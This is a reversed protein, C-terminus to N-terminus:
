FSQSLIQKTTKFHLKAVNKLEDKGFKKVFENAFNIVNQGAGKPFNMGYKESLIKLQKLFEARALISASAVAIDTEDAKPTQILNIKKGMQMLSNLLYNEDGFQDSIASSCKFGVKEIEKLLNEIVRAHGWALLKNLNLKETLENYRKPKIVVVNVICVEKIKESLEFVRKDSLKKSDKVGFKELEKNLNENSVVGAIVLPGFFDGKGSEDVGIYNEM